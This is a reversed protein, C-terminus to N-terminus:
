RQEGANPPVTALPEKILPALQVALHEIADRVLSGTTLAGIFSKVISSFFRQVIGTVAVNAHKKAGGRVATQKM